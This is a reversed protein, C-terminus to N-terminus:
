NQKYIFLLWGVISIIGATIVVKLVGMWFDRSRLTNSKCNMLTQVQSKLGPNDFLVSRVDEIDRSIGKHEQKHVEKWILLEDLKGNMEDLKDLIPDSM